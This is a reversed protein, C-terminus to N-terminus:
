GLLGQGAPPTVHTIVDKQGSFHLCNLSTTATGNPLGAPEVSRKSFFKSASPSPEFRRLAAAVPAIKEVVVAPSSEPSSVVGNESKGRDTDPGSEDEEEEHEEGRRSGRAAQGQEGDGASSALSAGKQGSDTQEPTRAGVEHEEPAQLWWREGPDGSTQSHLPVTAKAAAASAPPPAAPALEGGRVFFKEAALRRQSAPAGASADAQAACRRVTSWRMCACACARVSLSLSPSPPPPLSPVGVIDPCLAKITLSKLMWDRQSAGM